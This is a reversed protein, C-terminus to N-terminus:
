VLNKQGFAPHGWGRRESRTDPCVMIVWLMPYIPRQLCHLGLDSAVNQPMQDPDVSNGM